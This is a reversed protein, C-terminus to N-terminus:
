GRFPMSSAPAHHVEKCTTGACCGGADYSRLEIDGEVVREVSYTPCDLDHCFWPADDRLSSSPQDRWLVAVAAAIAATSGRLKAASATTTTALCALLLLLAASPQIRAMRFPSHISRQGPFIGLSPTSGDHHYIFKESLTICKCRVFVCIRLISDKPAALAHCFVVACM